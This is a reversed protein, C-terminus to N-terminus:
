NNILYMSSDFGLDWPKWKVRQAVRVPKIFQEVSYIILMYLYLYLIDMSCTHLFFQMYIHWVTFFTRVGFRTEKNIAFPLLVIKSHFAIISFIFFSKVICCANRPPISGWVEHNRKVRRAAWVLKIFHYSNYIILM